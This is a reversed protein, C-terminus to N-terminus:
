PNTYKESVDMETPVQYKTRKYKSVEGYDTQLDHIKCVKRKLYKDNVRIYLLDKFLKAKNLM